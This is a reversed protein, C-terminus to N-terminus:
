RALGHKYRWERVANDSLKPAGESVIVERLAVHGWAPDGAAKLVAEQDTAPLTEVWVDLVSKGTQRRTPPTALKQILSDVTQTREPIGDPAM